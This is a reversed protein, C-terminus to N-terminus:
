LDREYFLMPAGDDDRNIFGASEYLARAAVDGEGTGLDIRVAGAARARALVADLLARGFGQGRREPVVFLEELYAEQGEAGWLFPRLRYVAVGVPPNGALLVALEGGEVLEAVRRALVEVGPSPDGFETNFAHLLGAAAKAEDPGAARVEIADNTM